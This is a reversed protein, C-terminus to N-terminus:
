SSHREVIAVGQRYGLGGNGHVLGITEPGDRLRHHMAILANLAPNNWAGRALNMGGTITISHQKLFEPINQVVDVLGSILLFAMPVVPYCTYTELLADGRKFVNPFDIDAESCADDYASQLHDYRAITDIHEPGDADLRSLGVAKVHLWQSKTINLRTATDASTILIRGSFDVLPNACDIGRFLETIPQYWRQDPLLQENFDSALAHRYSTKYNEFLQSAVDMFEHGSLGHQQSFNQALQTYLETLPFQDGYVAMKELREDRTYGSKIFDEGSIFVAPTGNEILKKAASLAEIPACGSRFHNHKEPADWDTKLPDIYLHEPTIGLSLLQSELQMVHDLSGIGDEQKAAAIIYAATKTM